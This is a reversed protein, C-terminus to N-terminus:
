LAGNRRKDLEHQLYWVAKELDAITQGKPRALYKVVCGLNFNLGWADIVAIPELTMAAYHESHPARQDTQSAIRARDKAHCVNLCGPGDHDMEASTRECAPCREAHEKGHVTVASLNAAVNRLATVADVGRVTPTTLTTRVSAAFLEGDKDQHAGNAHTLLICGIVFCIPQVGERGTPIWQNGQSNRHLPHPGNLVCQPNPCPASMRTSVEDAYNV